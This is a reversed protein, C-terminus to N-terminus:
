KSPNPLDKGEGGKGEWKQKRKVKRGKNKEAHLEEVILVSCKGTSPHSHDFMSFFM